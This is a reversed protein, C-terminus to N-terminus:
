KKYCPVEQAEAAIPCGELWDPTRSMIKEVDKVSIGADVENVAEDHVHFLVDIGSTSQLDILHEGFTDRSIAQDVNETLLGGYFPKRVVANRKQDFALATYVVKARWKKENDPDSVIKRERLVQGYRLKRGSPLDIEFDQGVSSRLAEDLKKWIGVVLPNQERYESVIKKSNYGYGPLMIPKEDKDLCPEGNENLAPIFEPDDKTIDLGAMMMAVIIFKEWGCGYGLGLVRAKALAYLEKAEMDGQKILKKMDGRTWNMTAEAHAQYPSNGEAMSALMRKDQIMWALVRPEIQSLDSIILKKGPRAIFLSRIDLVDSVFDPFNGVRGYYKDIERLKDSDTILWGDTDRYLPEKRMNQMNFGGGGAWRGTHAGFYLLDFGFVGEPMLRNKITELNAFFKDVKAYDSYAKVWSYKPGYTTEWEDYAEEGERDKVPPCPIGVKRCEIAIANRSRPSKGEKVWPLATEMQLLMEQTVKLYHFLKQVDIQIGRQGQWITLNSLVREREPWLHGYKAFLQHCRLADQRAYQLMEEAKGDRVIDDWGKGDAYDRTEKQLKVGLLFESARALDRRMCLYTTMNATCHWEKCQVRPALGLRIMREYVGQDFYKNHSLWTAKDLSDWNFNKPSGAWTEQGDSVSILYTDFRPDHLYAWTGQERIGFGEKKHYKTEYDIAITRSM